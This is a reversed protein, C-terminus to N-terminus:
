AVRAPVPWRVDEVPRLRGEGVWWEHERGCEKCRIRMKHGPLRSLTREDVLVGSNVDRGTDPCTFVIMLSMRTRGSKLIRGICSVIRRDVCSDHAAFRQHFESITILYWASEAASKDM